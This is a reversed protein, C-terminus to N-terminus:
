GLKEMVQSKEQNEDHSNECSNVLGFFNLTKLSLCFKKKLHASEGLGKM